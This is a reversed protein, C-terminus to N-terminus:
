ANRSHVIYRDIYRAINIYLYVYLSRGADKSFIKLFSPVKSLCEWFTSMVTNVM